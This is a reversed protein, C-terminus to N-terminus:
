SPSKLLAPYWISGDAFNRFYSKTEILQIRQLHARLNCKYKEPNTMTKVLTSPATVTGAMYSKSSSSSYKSSRGNGFKEKAAM